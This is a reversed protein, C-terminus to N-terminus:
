IRTVQTTITTKSFAIGLVFLCLIVSALSIILTYKRGIYKVDVIFTSLFSGFLPALSSSLLKEFANMSSTKNFMNVGYAAFNLGALYQSAQVASNALLSKKFSRSAWSSRLTELFTTQHYHNNSLIQLLQRADNPELVKEM